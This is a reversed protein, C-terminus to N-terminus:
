LLGGEAIGVVPGSLLPPCPHALTRSPPPYLGEGRGEAPGARCGGPVTLRVAGALQTGVCPLLGREASAAPCQTTGVPLHRNRSGVAFDASAM